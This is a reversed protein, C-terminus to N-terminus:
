PRRERAPRRPDQDDAAVDIRHGVAAPEVAHRPTSDASSTSRESDASPGGGSVTLSTSQASSSPARKPRLRSPEIAAAPCARGRSRARASTVRVAVRGGVREGSVADVQVPHASDRSARQPAAGVDLQVDLLARHELRAVQRQADDGADVSGLPPRRRNVPCADCAPEVGISWRRSASSAAARSASSTRSSARVRPPTPVTPRISESGPIGVATAPTAVASTSWRWTSASASCRGARAPRSRGAARDGLLLVHLDLPRRQEPDDGIWKSASMTAAAPSIMVSRCPISMRSGLPGNCSAARTASAPTGVTISNTRLLRPSDCVRSSSVSSASRSSASVASSRSTLVLELPAALAGADDTAVAPATQYTRAVPRRESERRRPSRPGPPGIMLARM